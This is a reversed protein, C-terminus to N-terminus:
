FPLVETLSGTLPDKLMLVQGQELRTQLAVHHALSRRIVERASSADNKEILYQIDAKMRPSLDLNIRESSTTLTRM